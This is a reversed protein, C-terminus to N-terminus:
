GRATPSPTGRGGAARPLPSVVVSGNRGVTGRSAAAVTEVADTADDPLSAAAASSGPLRLGTDVQVADALSEYEERRQPHATALALYALLRPGSTGTARALSEVGLA